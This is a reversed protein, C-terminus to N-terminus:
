CNVSKFFTKKGLFMNGYPNQCYLQSYLHKNIKGPIAGFDELDHWPTETFKIQNGRYSPIKLICVKLYRHGLYMKVANTSNDIKFSLISVQM